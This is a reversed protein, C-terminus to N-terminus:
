TPKNMRKDTQKYTRKNKTQENFQEQKNTPEDRQENM